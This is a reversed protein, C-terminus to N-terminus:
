RRPAARRDYNVGPPLVAASGTRPPVVRFAQQVSERLPGASQEMPSLLLTREFGDDRRFVALWWGGVLNEAVDITWSGALGRLAEQFDAQLSKAQLSGTIAIWAM